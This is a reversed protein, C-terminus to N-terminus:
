RDREGPYNTTHIKSLMPPVSQEAPLAPACASSKSPPQLSIFLAARSLLSILSPRNKTNIPAPKTMIPDTNRM